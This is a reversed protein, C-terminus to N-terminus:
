LFTPLHSHVNNRSHSSILSCPSSVSALILKSPSLCPFNLPGLDNNPVRDLRVIEYRRNLASQVNTDRVAPNPAPIHSATKATVGESVMLNTGEEEGEEEIGV